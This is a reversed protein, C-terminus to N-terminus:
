KTGKIPRDRVESYAYDSKWSHSDLMKSLIINLKVYEVFLEAQSNEYDFDTLKLPRLDFEL